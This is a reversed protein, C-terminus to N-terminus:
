QGVDGAFREATLEPVVPLADTCKLTMLASKSKLEPSAARGPREAGLSPLKVLKSQPRGKKKPRM